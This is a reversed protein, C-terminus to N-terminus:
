VGEVAPLPPPFGDRYGSRVDLTRCGTWWLHQVLLRTTRGVIICGTSADARGSSNDGHIYFGARGYVQFGKEIQLPFVVEGLRPHNRPSEIHWLGVPIPGVAKEDIREPDNRASPTGSYGLALLCLRNKTDRLFLCGTYVEYVLSLDEAIVKVNTM